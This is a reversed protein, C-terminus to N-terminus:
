VEDLPETKIWEDREPIANDPRVSGVWIVPLVNENPRAYEADDGHLVFRPTAVVVDAAQRAIEVAAEAQEVADEASEAAATAQAVADEAVLMAQMGARHSEQSVVPILTSGFDLLGDPIDARFGQHAGRQGVTISPIPSDNLDYLQVPPGDATQLLNGTAGIAFQGTEEDLVVAPPYTYKM